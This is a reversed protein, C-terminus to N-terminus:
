MGIRAFEDELIQVLERLRVPKSLYVDAGAALCREEDGPMALATLAIISIDTMALQQRIHQIASLGDMVPMQIDMLILSPHEQETLAVAQLGNEAVLVEYNNQELFSVMTELNSPNDEAVLIRRPVTVRPEEEGGQGAEGNERAAPQTSFLPLHLVFRSGKGPVGESQARISGSNLAALKASLALGLGTGNYKRTLGSDLQVFPQFLRRLDAQSIGIGTDTVVVQVEQVAPDAIIEVGVWGGETTFKIANSLLNLLIQTLQRADAGVQWGQADPEFEVNIRKQRALEEVQRLSKQVVEKLVLPQPHSEVQGAEIRALDLIDNILNLLHQGNEEILRLPREQRAEIEGYTGAVLSECMGLIANLPTRLEHSMNALFEDKIRLAQLLDQNAAILDATREMIRQNLQNREEELKEQLKKREALEAQAKEYLLANNSAVAIQSALAQLIRLHAASFADKEYAFVQIAGVTKGALSLPVILVSQPTETDNPVEEAAYVRDQNDIYHVSSSTRIQPAVDNILLPQGSRIVNSQLGKGEPELPVPPLKSIDVEVGSVIGFKCYILGEAEEYFSVFLNDHPMIQSVLDFFTHYIVKPDLTESLKQGAAYLLELEQAHPFDAKEPQDPHDFEFVM